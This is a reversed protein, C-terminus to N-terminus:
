TRVQTVLTQWIPWGCLRYPHWHWKKMNVQACYNYFLGAMMWEMWVARQESWLRLYEGYGKGEMMQRYSEEMM